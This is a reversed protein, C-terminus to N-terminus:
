AKPKTKTKKQSLIYGGATIGFAGLVILVIFLTNDKKDEVVPTIVTNKPQQALSAANAAASVLANQNALAQASAAASTAAQQAAEKDRRKQAIQAELSAKEANFASLAAQADATLATAKGQYENKLKDLGPQWVENLEKIYKEREDANPTFLQDFWGNVPMNKEIEQADTM